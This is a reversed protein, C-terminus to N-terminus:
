DKNLDNLLFEFNGNTRALALIQNQWEETYEKATVKKMDENSGDYWGLIEAIEYITYHLLLKEDQQGPIVLEDAIDCSISHIDLGVQECEFKLGDRTRCFDAAGEKTIFQYEAIEEVYDSLFYSGTRKILDRFFEETKERVQKKTKM